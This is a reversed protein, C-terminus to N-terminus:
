ACRIACPRTFSAPGGPQPANPLGADAVGAFQDAGQGHGCRSASNPRVAYVFYRFALCAGIATLVQSEIEFVRSNSPM